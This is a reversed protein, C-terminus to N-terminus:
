VQYNERINVVKNVVRVPAPTDGHEGKPWALGRSLEGGRSRAFVLDLADGWELLHALQQDAHEIRARLEKVAAVTLEGARVVMDLHTREMAVDHIIQGILTSHDDLRGCHEGLMKHLRFDADDLKQEIRLLDGQQNALRQDTVQRWLSWRRWLLDFFWM